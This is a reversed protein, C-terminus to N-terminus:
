AASRIDPDRIGPALSSPRSVIDPAIDQKDTMVGISQWWTEVPIRLQEVTLSCRKAIWFDGQREYRWLPDCHLPVQEFTVIDPTDPHSIQKLQGPVLRTEGDPFQVPITM